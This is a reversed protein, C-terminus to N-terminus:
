AGALGGRLLEGVQQAIVPLDLVAQVIHAVEGVVFVAAPHIHAVLRAIQGAQGVRGDRDDAAQGLELVHGLGVAMERRAGLLGEVAQQLWGPALGAVASGLQGAVRNHPM